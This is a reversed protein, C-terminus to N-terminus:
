KTSASVPREAGPRPGRELLRLALTGANRVHIRAAQAAATADRKKLASMLVRIEAISRKSRDPDSLTMVRLQSARLQISRLMLAALDHDAGAVFADYFRRKAAVVGQEARYSAELADVCRELEAIQASSALEAFRQAVFSELLERAEYIERAGRPSITSVIVGRNALNTVIGDTELERLAERLSTRSVGLLECLEREILREGPMFRGEAIAERMREVVQQRLPAAAAAIRLSAPPTPDPEKDHRTM